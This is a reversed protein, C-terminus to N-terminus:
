KNIQYSTLIIIVDMIKRGPMAWLELMTAPILMQATMSGSVFCGDRDPNRGLLHTKLYCKDQLRVQMASTM